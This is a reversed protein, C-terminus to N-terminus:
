NGKLKIRVQEATNRMSTPIENFTTNRDSKSSLLREAESNLQSMSGWDSPDSNKWKEIINDLMSNVDNYESSDIAIVANLIWEKVENIIEDRGRINPDEIEDYSRILAVFVAPLARKISGLSFPTISVGEVYRYFSQHYNKFLEYISRDKSKNHNYVTVVLGPHVRGVRSTCQIYEATSRPHGHVLMLGLRSIDVGVSIMNTALLIDIGKFYDGGYERSQTWNKNLKSVITEIEDQTLRGTLEEYDIIKRAFTTDSLDTGLNGKNIKKADGELIDRLRIMQNSMYALERKSNFYWVLTGYPDFATDKETHEPFLTERIEKQGSGFSKLSKINTIIPDELSIIKADAFDDKRENYDNIKSIKYNTMESTHFISFTNGERLNAQENVVIELDGKKADEIVDEISSLFNPDFDNM